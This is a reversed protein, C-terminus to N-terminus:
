QRRCSYTYIYINTHRYVGTHMYMHSPWLRIETAKEANNKWWGQGTFGLSRWPKLERIIHNCSCEVVGQTEHPDQFDFETGWAQLVFIESIFGDGWGGVWRDEAILM